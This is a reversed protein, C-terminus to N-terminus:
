PSETFIVERVGTTPLKQIAGIIAEQEASFISLQDIIRRRTSRNRGRIRSKRGEKRHLDKHPRQIKRKGTRAIRCPSKMIHKKERKVPLGIWIKGMMPTGHRDSIAPLRRWKEEM